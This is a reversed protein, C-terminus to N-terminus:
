SFRPKGMDRMATEAADITRTKDSRWRPRQSVSAAVRGMACPGAMRSRFALPPGPRKVYMM